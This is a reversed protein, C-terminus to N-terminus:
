ALDDFSGDPFDLDDFNVEVDEANAAEAAKRDDRIKEWDVRPFSDVYARQAAYERRDMNGYMPKDLQEYLKRAGPIIDLIDQTNNTHKKTHIPPLNTGGTSPTKGGGLANNIGGPPSLSAGARLPIKGLDYKKVLQGSSLKAYGAEVLVGKEKLSQRARSVARKDIGTRTATLNSSAHYGPSDRFWDLFVKTEIETLTSSALEGLLGDIGVTNIKSM